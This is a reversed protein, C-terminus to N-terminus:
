STIRELTRIRDYASRIADMQRSVLERSAPSNLTSLAKEYSEVAAHDGRECESIIVNEDRGTVAARVNIWGRHMSGVMSEANEATGGLDRIHHQLESAFQSRQQAYTVFLSQLQTDRVGESAQMYGDEGDKCTAVLDNLTSVAESNTNTNTM